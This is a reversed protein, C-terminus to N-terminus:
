KAINKFAHQSLAHKLKVSIRFDFEFTQDIFSGGSLRFINIACFRGIRIFQDAPLLLLFDKLTNTRITKKIKDNFALYVNVLHDCSEIMIIDNPRGYVHEGNKVFFRFLNKSSLNNILEPEQSFSLPSVKKLTKNKISTLPHLATENVKYNSLKIKRLNKKLEKIDSSPKNSNLAIGYVPASILSNSLKIDNQEKM